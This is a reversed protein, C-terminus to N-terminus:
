RGGSSNIIKSFIKKLQNAEDQLRSFEKQEIQNNTNKLLRIFFASEKSERRCTKIKFVFDRRSLAENAEIYNSGVSGSARLLQKIDDNNIVTKPISKCLRRIELAFQYTRDELDFNGNM